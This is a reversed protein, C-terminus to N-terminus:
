GLGEAFSLEYVFYHAETRTADRAVILGVACVAGSGHGPMEVAGAPGGVATVLGRPGGSCVIPTPARHRSNTASGSAARALYLPRTRRRSPGGYRAPVSLWPWVAIIKAACSGGTM